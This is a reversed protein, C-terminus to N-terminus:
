TNKNQGKKLVSLEEETNFGQLALVEPINLFNAKHKVLFDRASQNGGEIYSRLLSSASNEWLSIMPEPSKGNIDYFCTAVKGKERHNVLFSLVQESVLPMDVGVVLWAKEAYKTMASLIGNLPGAIDFQDVISNFKTDLTQTNNVSVFVEACFKELLDYLYEEQTQSHFRTLRKDSGFRSSKGGALVLGFLDPNGASTM